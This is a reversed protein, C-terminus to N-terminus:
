QASPSSRFQPFVCRPHSDIHRHVPSEGRSGSRSRSPRRRQQRSGSRSRSRCLRILPFCHTLLDAISSDWSEVRIRRPRADDGVVSFFIWVSTFMKKRLHKEERGFFFTFPWGARKTQSATRSVRTALSLSFPHRHWDRVTTYSRCALRSSWSNMLTIKDFTVDSADCILIM